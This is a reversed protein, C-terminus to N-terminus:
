SQIRRLSRSTEQLPIEKYHSRHYLKIYEREYKESVGLDGLRVEDSDMLIRNIKKELIGYNLLFEKKENYYAITDVVEDIYSLARYLHTIIDSMERSRYNNIVELSTNVREALTLNRNWEYDEIPLLSGITNELDKLHDYLVGIIRAVVEVTALITDRILIVKLVKLNEEGVRFDKKELDQALTKIMHFKDELVPLLMEDRNSLELITEVSEKIPRTSKVIETSYQREWNKLSSLIADIIIWPQDIEAKERSIQIIPSDVPLSPEFLSCITEYIRDTTAILKEVLVGGSEIVHYIYGIKMELTSDTPPDVMEPPEIELGLEHIEKVSELYEFKIKIFYEDLAVGLQGNFNSVTSNLETFVRRTLSDVENLSMDEESAKKIVENLEDAVILMRTKLSSLSSPIPGRTINILGLYHNVEKLMSESGVRLKQVREALVERLDIIYKSLSVPASLIITFGTSLMLISPDVVAQFALPTHLIGLLVFFMVSALSAAAVPLGYVMIDVYKQPFHTKKLPEPLKLTLLAAVSILGSIIILFFLMGPLSDVYSALALQLEGSNGAPKLIQDSIVRLIHNIETLSVQRMSEQIDKHIINLPTYLSPPIGEQFTKLYQMVQLPISIFTYYSFTILIGRKKYITAFILIVPVALYFTSKFFLLSVAVIGIDMAIIALNDTLSTSVIIFPIILVVMVFMRSLPSHFLQFFNIRSLHYFLGLTIIMSGLFAGVPPDRYIAYAVLFAVIIPLPTPLLPILYFALTMSIVTILFTTVKGTKETLELDTFLSISM